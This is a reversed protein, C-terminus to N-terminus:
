HITKVPTEFVVAASLMTTMPHHWSSKSRRDMRELLQLRALIIECDVDDVGLSKLKPQDLCLLKGGDIGAGAFLPVLEPLSVDHELWDGCQGSTWDQVSALTPRPGAVLRRMKTFVEARKLKLQENEVLLAPLQSLHSIKYRCRCPHLHM